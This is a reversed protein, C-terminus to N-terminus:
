FLSGEATQEDDIEDDVTEEEDEVIQSQEAISHVEDLNTLDVNNVSEVIEQKHFTFDDDASIEESEEKGQELIKRCLQNLDILKEYFLQTDLDPWLLIKGDALATDLKKAALDEPEDNSLEELM